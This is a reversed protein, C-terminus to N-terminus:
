FTLDMRCRTGGYQKAYYFSAARAAEESSHFFPPREHYHTRRIGHDAVFWGILQNETGYTWERVRYHRGLKDMRFEIAPLGNDYHAITFIRIDGEQRWRQPNAIDTTRTM